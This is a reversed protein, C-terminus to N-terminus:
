PSSREVKEKLRERILSAYDRTEQQKETRGLNNFHLRRRMVTTNIQKVRFNERVSQTFKIGEGTKLTEDFQIKDLVRRRILASGHFQGFYPETRPRLKQKEEDPLEDSVFESIMGYVVDTKRDFGAMLASFAGECVIDDSDTFFIFEGTAASIGANRAAATRKRRQRLVIAGSAEAIGSGGDTSGDDVVIIQPQYAQGKVSEIAEGIYKECNYLPIIVSITNNM